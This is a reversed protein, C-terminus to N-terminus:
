TFCRRKSTQNNHHHHAAIDLTHLYQCGWPSCFNLTVGTGSRGRGSWMNLSVLKPYRQSSNTPNRKDDHTRLCVSYCWINRATAVNIPLCQKSPRRNRSMENSIKLDRTLAQLWWQGWYRLYCQPQNICKWQEGTAGEPRRAGWSMPPNNGKEGMAGEPRGSGWSKLLPTRAWLSLSEETNCVSGRFCKQTIRKTM